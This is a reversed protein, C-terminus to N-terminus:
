VSCDLDKTQLCASGDNLVCCASQREAERAAVLKERINIDNRMCPSFRAGIHILDAKDTMCCVDRLGLWAVNYFRQGLTQM